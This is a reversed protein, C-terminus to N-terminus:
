CSLTIIKRCCIARVEENPLPVLELVDNIWPFIEWSAMGLLAYSVLASRYLLKNESLNEMFPQGRYNAVFTTVQMTSSVLFMISNIVNPNFKGDPHMSPDAYDVYPQAMQLSIALFLMHIIFQGLMSVLVSTCFVGQPPREHSLKKTPEARSLFLFFM